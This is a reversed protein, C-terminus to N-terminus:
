ERFYFIHPLFNLHLEVHRDKFVTMSALMNKCFMESEIDGNLIGVVQSQIVSRLNQSDNREQQMDLEAIKLNISDLEKEYKQKISLMDEKTIDGSCFGDILIEKRQLLRDMSVQLQRKQDVPDREKPISNIALDTVHNIIDKVDMSLSQLSIKFM